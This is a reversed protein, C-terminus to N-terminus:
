VISQNVDEFTQCNKRPKTAYIAQGAAGKLIAGFGGEDDAEVSIKCVSLIGGTLCYLCIVCPPTVM